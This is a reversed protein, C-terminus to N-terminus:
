LDFVSKPKKWDLGLKKRLVFWYAWGWFAGGIHAFYGIGDEWGKVQIGAYIMQFVLWLVMAYIAPLSILDWFIERKPFAFAFFLMVGAIGGSAGIGVDSSLPDHYYTLADGLGASLFLIALFHLPGVKNEISVGFLLLFYMNGLLHEWNAHLLFSSLLTLGGHRDWQAPMFGWDQAIANIQSFSFLSVGVTALVVVLTAWPFRVWVEDGPKTPLGSCPYFGNGFPPNPNMPGPEEKM